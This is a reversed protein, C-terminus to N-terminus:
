REVRRRKDGVGFGNRIVNNLITSISLQDFRQTLRSNVPNKAKAYLRGACAAYYDDVKTAELEDLQIAPELEDEAIKKAPVYSSLTISSM